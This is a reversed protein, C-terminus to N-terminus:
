LRARKERARRYDLTADIEETLSNEAVVTGAIVARQKSNQGSGVLTGGRDATVM